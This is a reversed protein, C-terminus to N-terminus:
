GDGINDLFFSCWRYIAKSLNVAQIGNAHDSQFFFAHEYKLNYKCM